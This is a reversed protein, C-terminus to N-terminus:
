QSEAGSYDLPISGFPWSSLVQNGQFQLLYESKIMQKTIDWKWEFATRTKELRTERVLVLPRDHISHCSIARWCLCSSLFLDRRLQMSNQRRNHMPTASIHQLFCKREFLLNNDMNPLRLRLGFHTMTIQIYNRQRSNWTVYRRRLTCTLNLQVALETFVLLCVIYSEPLLVMSQSWHAIVRCTQRKESILTRTWSGGYWCWVNVNVGFDFWCLGWLFPSPKTVFAM